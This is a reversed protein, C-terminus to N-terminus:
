MLRVKKVFFCETEFYVGHGDPKNQFWCHFKAVSSGCVAEVNCPKNGKSYPNLERGYYLLLCMLQVAEREDEVVCTISRGCSTVVVDQYRQEKM